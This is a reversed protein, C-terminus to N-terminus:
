WKTPGGSAPEDTRSGPHEMSKGLFVRYSPSVSLAKIWGGEMQQRGSEAGVALERARSKRYRPPLVPARPSLSSLPASLTLAFMSDM